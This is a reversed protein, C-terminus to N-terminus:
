TWTDSPPSVDEFPPLVQIECGWWAVGVGRDERCRAIAVEEVVEVSDRCAWYFGVTEWFRGYRGMFGGWFIQVMLKPVEWGKIREGLASIVQPLAVGDDTTYDVAM